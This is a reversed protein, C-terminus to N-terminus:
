VNAKESAKETGEMLLSPGPEQKIAVRGTGDVRNLMIKLNHKAIYEDVADRAGQWDGYDDIILVGGVALRPFLHELEHRTSEYWDTDLRLLAIDGQPMKDPITEEVMGKILHVREMPYGTTKINATVDELSAYCWTNVGGQTQSEEWKGQATDGTRSIDKETPPSMGEYTDFLFMDRNTEKQEMLTLAAAMSSGGRWVGCEVIAGPVQHRVLYEVAKYVSYIRANSTMTYPRVQNVIRLAEPEFDRPIYRSVEYGLQHAMKKILKILGKKM